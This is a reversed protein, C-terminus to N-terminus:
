PQPEAAVCGRVRLLKVGLTARHGAFTLVSLLMTMGDATMCAAPIYPVTIVGQKVQERVSHETLRLHHTCNHFQANIGDLTGNLNLYQCVRVAAAWHSNDPRNADQGLM